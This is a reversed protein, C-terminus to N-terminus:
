GELAAAGSVIENLETTIADQRARNYTLRLERLLENANETAQDMSTMRAGHESANNDLLMRYMRTKLILPILYHILTDRDPEFIYNPVVAPKDEADIKPIPLYQETTFIQSAANKFQSYVVEILDSEGTLFSQALYEALQNADDYNLRTFLRSFDANIDEFYRQFYEKGRKGVTLIYVKGDPGIQAKLENIRKEAMRILNANFSGCLGRDSTMVVITANQVPREVARPLELEGELNSVLSSLIDTMRNAYPRMQLIADQAKRLKAASVLKMAKTIQQTSIVSKIRLRVEKLKAPM